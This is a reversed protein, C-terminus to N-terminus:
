FLDRLFKISKEPLSLINKVTDNLIKTKPFRIEPNSLHGVIELRVSPVAVFDNRISFNITRRALNFSGKGSSELLPSELKFYDMVFNGRRVAFRAEAKKFLTRRKSLDPKKKAFLKKNFSEKPKKYDYGTFKFSGDRVIGTVTGSLNALVAEDTSGSSTLDISVDTKGKLYEREAQDKMFPGAKMGKVDLILHTSLRRAGVVGKWSGLLSGGYLDGKVGFLEIHGKRAKLAGSVNRARIDALKFEEFWAKGELNLWRLADLPLKVPIPKPPPGAKNEQDADDSPPLYRDLDFRGASLNFRLLPDIYGVGSVRGSFAVGDFRGEVGTLQFGEKNATFRAIGSLRTLAKPDDTELESQGLLAVIRKIDARVLNVDGKAKVGRDLDSLLANGNIMCNLSRVSGQVIKLWHKNSDFALLGSAQLQHESEVYLPGTVHVETKMGTGTVHLRDVATAISGKTRASFQNFLENGSGKLDAEVAFSYFGKKTSKRPSFSVATRVAAYNFPKDDGYRVRGKGVRYGIRGRTHRLINISRGEEPCLMTPLHLRIDIAGKGTVSLPPVNMFAFGSDLSEAEMDVDMGLTSHGTKEDRGIRLEAKGGLTGQGKRIAGADFLIRQDNANVDLRIDSVATEWLTLGDVRISGEGRLSQWFPLNFDGWYFPEDTAFLPLYRDVDVMGGRLDFALRPDVFGRVGLNGRVTLDDLSAALNNFEVGTEDLEIYSAFSASYLGDVSDMPVDSVFRSIIEYPKFPKITIHGTAKLSKSLDSSRLRGEARLGLFHCYLSELSLSKKEWDLLVQATLEGPKEGEPLITGDITAYISCDHLAIRHERDYDIIGKLVIESQIYTKDWSFSSSASFPVSEGPVIAGTRFNIGRLAGRQQNQLDEYSVVADNVELESLSIGRLQGDGGFGASVDPQRGGTLGAWNITGDETRVININMGDVIISEIDVQKSLLPILRVNVLIRDFQALPLKSTLSGDVLALGLVELSLSPHLAINLEGELVVPNGIARSLLTTFESKFEETDVHHSVYFLGAAMLMVAIIAAEAVLIGLRKIFRM